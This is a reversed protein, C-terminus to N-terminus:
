AQGFRDVVAPCAALLDVPVKIIGPNHPDLPHETGGAVSKLFMRLAPSTQASYLKPM